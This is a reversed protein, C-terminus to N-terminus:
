PASEENARMVDRDDYIGKPELSKRSERSSAAQRNTEEDTRVALAPIRM